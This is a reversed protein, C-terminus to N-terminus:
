AEETGRLVYLDSGNQRGEQTGFLAKEINSAKDQHGGLM